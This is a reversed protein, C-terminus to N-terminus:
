CKSYRNESCRWPRETLYPWHTAVHCTLSSEPVASWMAPEQVKKLSDKQKMWISSSHQPTVTHWPSPAQMGLELASTAEVHGAQQWDVLQPICGTVMATVRPDWLIGRTAVGDTCLGPWHGPLQGGHRGKGMREWGLLQTWDISSIWPGLIWGPGQRGWPLEKLEPEWWIEGSPPDGVVLSEQRGYM